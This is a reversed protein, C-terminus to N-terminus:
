WAVMGQFGSVPDTVEVEDIRRLRGNRKVRFISVTGFGGNQTYLYEGDRSMAMDINLAGEKVPFLGIESLSGDRRVKYGSITGSGTNDAYVYRVFPRTGIIWCTAAQGTEAPMGIASVSDEKVKYSTVTSAGADTVILRGYSDFTFGFPVPGATPYIVPTNGPLYDNEKDVPFVWIANNVGHLGDKVTVVLLDGHPSFQVQAPTALINPFDSDPDDPNQPVDILVRTSDQIPILRHGYLKFGSINSPTENAAGNNSGANLVYLIKERFTLSVPFRGGSDVNDLFKLYEKKVEFATITDNGANVAFLYRGDESLILSNQSGFPDINVTKGVGAGLGGTPFYDVYKIRGNDSRRYMLIVNGDANNTMIFLAGSQDKSKYHYDKDWDRDDHGFAPLAFLIFLFSILLGFFKKQKM